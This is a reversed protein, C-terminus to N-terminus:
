PTISIKTPFLENKQTKLEEYKYRTFNLDVNCTAINAKKM